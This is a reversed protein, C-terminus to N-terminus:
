DRLPWVTAVAAIAVVLSGIVAATYGAADIAAGAATPGLASGIGSGTYLIGLVPGLRETGFREAVVSPCLSVFGGYGAGLLVAFAVLAVVSGQATWWVAFSLAVLTFCHRYTRTVGVRTALAALALRGVVSGCGLASILAAAQAPSAGRSEAYAPLHVFPVVLAASVLLSSLYLWGFEPTRVIAKVASGRPRTLAPPPHVVLACALLLPTAVAAVVLYADRWGVAEILAASAPPVVLTGLGIGTASVGLATARRRDFWAAVLAVMPVYVCAAGIGVGLGFGAIAVAISGARATVVLGIGTILAGAVLVPRVGFREAAAGTAGSVGFLTLM